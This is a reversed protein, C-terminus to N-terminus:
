SLKTTIGLRFEEAYFGEPAFSDGWSLDDNALAAGFEMWSGIHLSASIVCEERECIASDAELFLFHNGKGTFERLSGENM